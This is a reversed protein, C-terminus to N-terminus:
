NQRQFRAAFFGDMSGIDGIGLDLNSPTTRLWGASSVVGHLGMLEASHIPAASYHSQTSLFKEAVDEGEEPDLSCNSFVLMGGPKVLKAAHLLLKLQLEALKTVDQPTKTWLVDPHRRATGTSSCPADLLVADFLEDTKVDLLNSKVIAAKLKLRELNSALRRLRSSSLDVATVDAGALAMAATKGGPAACLDVVRKGNIDGMLRAPLSAAANQVWWEGEAFGPLESVKGDFTNLRVTGNPLVFGKLKEAWAQPNSKVTLDLPAPFRHMALIALGKAKGYTSIMRDAFWDPCDLTEALTRELREDKTRILGRLIANVLGAFRANRPDAKASEVALDVASHVPIDLFLIQAAGVHLLHSLSTANKPLPRDLLKDLMKGITVRHRLASSLIARVLARDRLELATFQPHGHDDDTLGDLSTKTDIVAGLLRQAAQRTALGPVTSTQIPRRNAPAAPRAASLVM